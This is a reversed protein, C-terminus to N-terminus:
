SPVFRGGSYSNTSHTPRKAGKDLQIPQEQYAGLKVQGSIAAYQDLSGVFAGLLLGRFVDGRPGAPQECLQECIIVRGDGAYWRKATPGLCGEGVGTVRAPSLARTPARNQASWKARKKPM